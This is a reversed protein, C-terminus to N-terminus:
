KLMYTHNVSASLIFISINCSALVPGWVVAPLSLLLVIPTYFFFRRVPHVYRHSLLFSPLGHFTKLICNGNPQWTQSKATSIPNFNYRFCHAPFHGQKNACNGKGSSIHEHSWITHFQINSKSPRIAIVGHCPLIKRNIKLQCFILSCAIIFNDGLFHFNSANKQPPNNNPTEKPWTNQGIIPM